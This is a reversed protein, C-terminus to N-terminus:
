CAQASSEPLVLERGLSLSEIAADAAKLGVLAQSLDLAPARSRDRVCALFHDHENCLPDDTDAAPVSTRRGESYFDLGVGVVLEVSGRDGVVEIRDPPADGGPFTWTTRLDCIIGSSTTASVTTLSRYGLGESRRALVSRFDSNTVWQALDIDHILTMLVPDTDPYDVAHREDRYRRSNVYIIKGIRGSGVFDVLRAHDHSFRLVHGPLVFGKSDGASALLPRVSKASSAVPKELLVSLQRGLARMSIDVHSDTRTAVIIADAEVEQILRLPDTLCRLSGPGSRVSELAAPNTDAVGVLDVDSRKLLRSLHEKGFAGAGAVLIRVPPSSASM